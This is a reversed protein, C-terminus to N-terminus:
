PLNIPFTLFDGISAEEPFRLLVFHGDIPNVNVATAYVVPDHNLSFRHAEVDEIYAEYSDAQNADGNPDRIDIPYTFVVGLNPDNGCVLQPSAAFVIPAIAANIAISVILVLLNFLSFIKKVKKYFLSNLSSKM